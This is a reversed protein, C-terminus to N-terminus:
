IFNIIGSINKEVRDLLNAPEKNEFFVEIHFHDLKAMIRILEFKQERTLKASVIRTFESFSV